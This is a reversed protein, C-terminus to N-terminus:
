GLNRDSALRRMALDSGFLAMVEAALPVADASVEVQFLKDFRDRWRWGKKQVLRVHVVADGREPMVLTWTDAFRLRGGPQRTIGGGVLRLETGDAFSVIPYGINIKESSAIRQGHGDILVLGWGVKRPKHSLWHGGDALLFLNAWRRHGSLTVKCRLLQAVPTTSFGGDQTEPLLVYALESSPFKVVEVGAGPFLGSPKPPALTRDLKLHFRKILALGAASDRRKWGGVAGWSSAVACRIKPRTRRVVWFVDM